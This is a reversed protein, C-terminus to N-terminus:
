ERPTLPKKSPALGLYPANSCTAMSDEPRSITTSEEEWRMRATVVVDPLVMVSAPLPVAVNILPMPTFAANLEGEPRALSGAEPTKYTPSLSFLRMRTIEGAPATVVSAPLPVGAQASPMPAAALKEPGRPRARDDSAEM